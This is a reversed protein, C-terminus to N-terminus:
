AGGGYEIEFDPVPDAGSDWWVSSRPAVHSCCHGYLYGLPFPVGFSKRGGGGGSRVVGRELGLQWARGLLLVFARASWCSRSLVGEGRVWSGRGEGDVAVM